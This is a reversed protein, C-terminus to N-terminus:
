KLKRLILTLLMGIAWFGFIIVASLYVIQYSSVPEAQLLLYLVLTIM